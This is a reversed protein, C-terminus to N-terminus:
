RGSGADTVLCRPRDVLAHGQASADNVCRLPRLRVICPRAAKTRSMIASGQKDNVGVHGRLCFNQSGQGTDGLLDAAFDAATFAM